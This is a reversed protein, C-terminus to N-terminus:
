SNIKHKKKLQRFDQISNVGSIEYKIIEAKMEAIRVEKELDKNEAEDM